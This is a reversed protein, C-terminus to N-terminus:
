DRQQGSAMASYLTHLHKVVNPLDDSGSENVIVDDAADLRQTRSAQVDIIAQVQAQTLGNRSMVRSIQSTVACDVVLVRQIATRWHDSEILLPVVLIVYPQGAAFAALALEKCQQRILPHLIGELQKRADAHNFIHDRMITRDMAGDAAIFHSGFINAIVPIAAGNPATLAHAIIDADVIGAGAAAFLNAVTSKGSGIGGTLGVVLM